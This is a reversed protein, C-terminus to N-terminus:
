RNLSCQGNNMIEDKMMEAGSDFLTKKNQSNSCQKNESTTIHFLIHSMADCTDDLSKIIHNTWFILPSFRKKEFCQICNILKFCMCGYARFFTFLDSIMWIFWRSTFRLDPQTQGLFKPLNRPRYKLFLPVHWRYQVQTQSM